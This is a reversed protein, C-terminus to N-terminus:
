EIPIELTAELDREKRKLKFFFFIDVPNRNKSMVLIDWVM